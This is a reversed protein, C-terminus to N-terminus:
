RKSTPTPPLEAKQGAPSVFTGSATRPEGPGTEWIAFDPVSSSPPPESDRGGREEWVKLASAAAGRVRDSNKWRARSAAELAARGDGTRGHLGLLEAAIARTQEHPDATVLRTDALLELCLSEARPATLNFLTELAERREGEPLGDFEPSRVRMVLGPGAVKVRYAGISKLAALRVAPDWDELMARLAQRIRIGSAGEVLGLAEIRVIPHPSRTAEHAADRAASTRLRTLIKLLALSPELHGNAFTSGIEGEHGPAHKQVYVVLHDRLPTAEMTSVATAIAAVHTGDLEPLMVSLRRRLEATADVAAAAAILGALRKPSVLANVLTATAAEREADTAFMRVGAELLSLLALTDAAATEGALGEVSARLPAAVLAPEGKRFAMVFAAAAATAFRDGVDAAGASLRASMVARMAPDIALPDVRGGSRVNSAQAAASVASPGAVAGLLARQKAAHDEPKGGHAQWADELQDSTDLNAGALVEARRKEFALREAQDGEAFSDGEEYLVHEFRADWLLTLLNDEPAIESSADAVLIRVLEALEEKRLGPCLALARVGDSFLRYCVQDLPPKPEWLTEEQATFGYARIHWALPEGNAGLAATVAAFAVDLRREVEKHGKGYQSRVKMAKELLVFLAAMAAMAAPSTHALLEDIEAVGPVDAPEEEPEAVPPPQELETAVHQSSSPKRPPGAVTPVFPAARELDAKMALADPYRKAQDFDLSRDIVAVLQVPAGPMARALSRAPRTAANVVRENDTEGEHVSQGTLLNFLTAGVAWLDTRADVQSTRGLAQEPAMYGPTGFVMGTRTRARATAPADERLRAIGFDLVKIKGDKTWFLNDPKIDRHVIGQAHAADLVGLLQQGVWVAEHAPLRGGIADARDAVSQGDLLEMVLYPSGDDDLEDDTVKVIGEHGTKNAIYAERLFRERLATVTAYQPHLIKLAATSGNRHSAAYVAAMGGIGLIRDLHWKQRVTSGVRSRCREDLDDETDDGDEM